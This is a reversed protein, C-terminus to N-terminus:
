FYLKLMILEIVVAVKVGELLSFWEECGLICWIEGSFFFLHNLHASLSFFWFFICDSSLMLLGSVCLNAAILSSNFKASVSGLDTM